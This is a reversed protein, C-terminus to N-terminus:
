EALVGFLNTRVLRGRECPKAWHSGFSVPFNLRVSVSDHVLVFYGENAEDTVIWFNAIGVVAFRTIRESGWAVSESTSASIPSAASNMM